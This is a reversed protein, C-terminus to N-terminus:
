LNELFRIMSNVGNQRGAGLNIQLAAFEARLNMEKIQAPTKGDIMAIIIAVIGRVLASDAWGYFNNDQRCIRVVSACGSIEACAASDPMAALGRGFDMVMELKEVPDSIGLLINKIEKYEM